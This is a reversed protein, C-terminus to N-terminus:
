EADIFDQFISPAVENGFMSSIDIFNSLDENLMESGEPEEIVVDENHRSFRADFVYSVGEEYIDALEAKARYLHLDRKGIWVEFDVEVLRDILEEEERMLDRDQESAVVEKWLKALEGREFGLVFHHMEVDDVVEEALVDRIEFIEATLLSDRVLEEQNDMAFDAMERDFWFWKGTEVNIFGEVEGETLGLEGMMFFVKDDLMRAEGRLGFDGESSDGGFVLSAILHGEDDFAVDGELEMAVNATPVFPSVQGNVELTTVHHVSKLNSLNESADQVIVWNEDVGRFLATDRGFVYFAVMGLAVVILVVVLIGVKDKKSKDAGMQIERPAGNLDRNEFGADEIM